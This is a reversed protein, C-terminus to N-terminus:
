QPSNVPGCPAATLAQSGYYIAKAPDKSLNQEAKELNERVSWENDKAQLSALSLVITFILALYNKM